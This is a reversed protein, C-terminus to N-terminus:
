LSCACTLASGGKTLVTGYSVRMSQTGGVPDGFSSTFHPVGCSSHRPEECGPSAHQGLVVCVDLM